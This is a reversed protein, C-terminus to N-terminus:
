GPRPAMPRAGNTCCSTATGCRASGTRNAATAWRTTACIATARPRVAVGGRARSSGAGRRTTGTSKWSGLNASSGVRFDYRRVVGLKEDARYYYRAGTQSAYGGGNVPPITVLTGSLSM